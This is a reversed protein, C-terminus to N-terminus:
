LKAAIHCFFLSVCFVLYRKDREDNGYGDDDSDDTDNSIMM